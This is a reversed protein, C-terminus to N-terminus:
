TIKKLRASFQRKAQPMAIFQIYRHQQRRNVRSNTTTVEM